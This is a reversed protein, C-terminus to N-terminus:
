IPLPLSTYSQKPVVESVVLMAKYLDDNMKRLTLLSSIKIPLTPVCHLCFPVIRRPQKSTTIFVECPGIQATFRNTKDTYINIVYCIVAHLM